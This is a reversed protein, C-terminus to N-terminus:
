SVSTPTPLPLHDLQKTIAGKYLPLGSVRRTFPAKTGSGGHHLFVPGGVSSYAGEQDAARKKNQKIRRDCGHVVKLSQQTSVSSAMGSVESVFQGLDAGDDECAAEAGILGAM